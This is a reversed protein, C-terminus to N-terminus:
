TGSQPSYHVFVFDIQGVVEENAQAMLELSSSNHPV